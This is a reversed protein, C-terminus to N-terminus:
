RLTRRLPDGLRAIYHGGQPQAHTLQCRAIEPGILLFSLPPILQTHLTRGLYRCVWSCLLPSTRPSVLVHKVDSLLSWYYMMSFEYSRWILIVCFDYPVSVAFTLLLLGSLTVIEPSSNIEALSKWRSILISCIRLTRSVMFGETDTWSCRRKPIIYAPAIRMIWGGQHNRLYWANTESRFPPRGRGDSRVSTPLRMVSAHCHSTSMSENNTNMQWQLQM